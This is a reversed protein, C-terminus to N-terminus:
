RRESGASEREHLWSLVAERRYRLHRGVRIAPPGERRVRWRYLSTIPIQLFTSLQETSSLEPLESQSLEEHGIGSRSV